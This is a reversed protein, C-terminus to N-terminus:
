PLRLRRAVVDRAVDNISRGEAYAHRRLRLFAETITIDLQASVMGSAQHVEVHADGAHALEPAVGGVAAVAQVALVVETVIDAMVLADSLQERRLPGPRNRYFDLAGVHIAGVLLPFGFVAGAGARVAPPAFAPWRATGAGALDPELAARGRGWAELGPGEGLNFQLEELTGSIGDSVALAGLTADGATLMIGVGSLGVVDLCADCLRGAVIEGDAINAKLDEVIATFRDRSV